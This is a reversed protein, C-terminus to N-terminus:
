FAGPSGILGLKQGRIVLELQSSVDLKTHLSKVYGRCTQVSIGLVRAISKPAMGRGLAVLVEHERRTLNPCDNAVPRVSPQGSRFASPAVILHGARLRTLVDIMEALSGNKPVFGSAGAQAARVVWEPDQHATVVAVVTDPLMERIRRTAALGDQGPLQIDMVVVDPRLEQAMAVAQGASTATGVPRMGADALAGSLLQAFVQHDDVVLVRTGELSTSLVGEILTATM